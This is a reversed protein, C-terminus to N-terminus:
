PILGIRRKIRFELNKVWHNYNRHITDGSCKLSESSVHEIVLAQRSYRISVVATHSRVRLTGKM